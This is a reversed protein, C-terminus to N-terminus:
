RSPQDHNGGTVQLDTHCQAVQQLFPFVEHSRLDPSAPADLVAWVIKGGDATPLVGFVRSLAVVITLGRGHQGLHNKRQHPLDPSNDRVCLRLRGLNWAVSLEVDTEAHVTSNTVLESVVLSASPILGGLGWDLLARAVFNRAARPATPHPPLGLREVASVPTALVASVATLTSATVILHQGLPHAHLTERFQPDACAVAVPIAPWDRVHRGATALIDVAGAGQLVASLDCVVGRPGDALALQIARDLEEIVDGLRGAVELVVLQRLAHKRVRAQPGPDPLVASLCPVDDFESDAFSDNLHSTPRVM